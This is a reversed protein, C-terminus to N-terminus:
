RPGKPVGPGWDPLQDDADEPSTMAGLDRMEEEAAELEENPVSPRPAPALFLWALAATLAVLIIGLVIM